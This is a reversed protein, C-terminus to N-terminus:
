FLLNREIIYFVIIYIVTFYVHKYKITKLYKFCKFLVFINRNHNLPLVRGQWPHSPLEIRGLRM